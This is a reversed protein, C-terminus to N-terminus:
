LIVPKSKKVSRNELRITLEEEGHIYYSEGLFQHKDCRKDADNYTCSAKNCDSEYTCFKIRGNKLVVFSM